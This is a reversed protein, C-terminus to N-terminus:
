LMRSLASEVWALPVILILQCIMLAVLPSLDVNAVPPVLRQIPRVLPRTVTTLLPALPSNPAVWSLVAQMIFAAMLIYVTLTALQVAGLAGLAALAAGVASGPAYGKVALVLWIQIVETLWALLLTALDLGWLGPIVRRAPRVMFDTLAALFASLQNRAPARLCQLLFRLLLALAFLGGITSVIFTLAQALM